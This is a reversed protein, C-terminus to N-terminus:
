LLVQKDKEMQAKHYANPNWGTLDRGRGYGTGKAWGGKAQVVADLEDADFGGDDGFHLLFNTVKPAKSDKAASNEKAATSNEKAASYNEKGTPNEKAASNEKAKPQTKPSKTSKSITPAKELLDFDIIDFNARPRIETALALKILHDDLPM